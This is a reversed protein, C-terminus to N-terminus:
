FPLNGGFFEVFFNRLARENKDDIRALKKELTHIAALASEHSSFYFTEFDRNGSLDDFHLVVCPRNAHDVGRIFQAPYDDDVAALLKKLTAADENTRKM